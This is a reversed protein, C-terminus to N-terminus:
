RPNQSLEPNREMVNYPIPLAYLLDGPALTYDTSNGDADIFTHNIGLNLRKIDGWRLGEELCLERRREELCFDLLTQGDAIDVSTYTNTEYRTERLTNLDQLANARYDEMGTELFLRCYAEARNLYVEANRIGRDGYQNNNLGIKNGVSNYKSGSNTAKTFYAENRLDETDYLSTLLPSVSYPPKSNTIPYLPWYNSARVSSTGYVWIPENSIDIDYIGKSHFTTKFSTLYTLSPKNSIVDTSYDIISQLDEKSNKYIYFRTLMAEAALYGVRFPSPATYNEKLLTVSTKLDAEIQDFTAKLSTRKPFIDQVNMSLVLPLGLAEDPNIQNVSYPQCYISALKFYYYGRLFLVQGKLSNIDKESATINELYDLVVNCGKIKKYYLEWSNADTPILYSGDFMTKTYMYIQMGNEFNTQYSDSTLGNSVMEDTLLNLYIDGSFLYPYAESYMVASLDELTEPIIEDQSTEELFDSCSNLFLASVGFLVVINLKLFRM